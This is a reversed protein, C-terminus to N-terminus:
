RDNSETDAYNGEKKTKLKANERVVQVTMPAIIKLRMYRGKHHVVQITVDKGIFVKEDQDITLVLM